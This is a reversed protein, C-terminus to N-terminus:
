GRVEGRADPLDAVLIQQMRARPVVHGVTELVIALDSLTTARDAYELNVRIKEPVIREIYFREPDPHEALLACEDAFLISAPDTIGPDLALVSRQEPTYLEVYRPVEPRPGVLTMEGRIVNFLQPLEDLKHARLWSGIRTIRPDGATTLPLGITGADPIMTRFKWMRFPRGGRGIREQRFFVSGGDEAKVLVAIVMMLPSLVALGCISTALDFSRKALTV